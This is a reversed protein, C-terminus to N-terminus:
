TGGRRRRPPKEAPETAPEAKREPSAGLDDLAQLYEERSLEGRSYRMRVIALPKDFGGPHNWGLRHHRRRHRCRDAILLVVGVLIAITLGLIVWEVTSTGADHPQQQNGFIGGNHMMPGLFGQLENLLRLIVQPENMVKM